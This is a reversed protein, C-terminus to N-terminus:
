DVARIFVAPTCDHTSSFGDGTDYARDSNSVLLLSRRIKAPHDIAAGEAMVLSEHRRRDDMAIYAAKWREFNEMAKFNINNVSHLSSFSNHGTKRFPHFHKGIVIITLSIYCIRVNTNEYRSCEECARQLVHFFRAIFFVGM